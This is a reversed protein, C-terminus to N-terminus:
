EGPGRPLKEVTVPVSTGPAIFAVPRVSGIRLAINVVAVLANYIPLWRLPIITLVETASSVAVFLAAANVWFTRSSLISEAWYTVHAAPLQTPANDPM